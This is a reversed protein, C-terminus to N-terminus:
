FPLAGVAKNDEIRGVPGIRVRPSQPISELGSLRGLVTFMELGVEPQRLGARVSETESSCELSAAMTGLVGERLVALWRGM